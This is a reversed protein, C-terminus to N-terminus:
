LSEFWDDEESSSSTKSTEQTKKTDEFEFPPDDDNFDIDSESADKTKTTPETKNGYEHDVLESDEETLFSKSMVKTLRAKLEDYTKFKDPAIESQLSYQQKWIKDFEDLSWRQKPESFVSKEYTPFSNSGVTKTTVRLHFDAGLVPDFIPTPEVDEFNPFIQESIKEFIQPGFLFRFVKGENEPKIKDKVVYINAVYNTSRPILLKKQEDKTLDERNFISMNYENAPDRENEGLSNRGREKYYEKKVNNWYSYSFFRVFADPEPSGDKSPPPPLFRIIAENASDKIFLHKYTWYTDDTFTEKKYNQNLNKIKDQLSSINNVDNRFSAYSM